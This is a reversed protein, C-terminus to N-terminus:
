NKFRSNVHFSATLAQMTDRVIRLEYEDCSELMRQFEREISARAHVVSDSLLDDMGLSLANAINVLSPLSVKATGSEINSMHTPSLDVMEALREQTLEMGIRALKIRKGLAKYNIEM